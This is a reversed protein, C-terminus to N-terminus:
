TLVGALRDLYEAWGGRHEDGYREKDTDPWALPERGSEQARRRSDGTALTLVPTAIDTM